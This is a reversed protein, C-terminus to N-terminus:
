EGSTVRRGFERAYYERFKDEDVWGYPKGSGWYKWGRKRPILSENEGFEGGDISFYFLIEEHDSDSLGEITEDLCDFPGGLIDCFKPWFEQFSMKQSIFARSLRRIEQLAELEPTM